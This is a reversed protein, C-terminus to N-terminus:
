LYEAFRPTYARFVALGIIVALVTILFPAPWAQNLVSVSWPVHRDQTVVAHRADEIVQALPNLLLLQQTRQSHFIALPFVVASAYFLLQSTIEWIHGLDRYFVFLASLFLGFGLTLVYLEILLPVLALSQWGLNLRASGPLLSGVLLILTLNIVFTMLATITAAVVLISRPFFAKKILNGNTVVTNVSIGTTEAFFTFIVVAVLLQMPFNPSLTGKDAHLVQVFILYMMGFIMLPKLLSWLYGLVSGTYKLKFQTVALERVLNVNRRFGAAVSVAASDDAYGPPATLGAPATTM